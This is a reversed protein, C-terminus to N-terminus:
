EPKVPAEPRAREGVPRGSGAYEERVLGAGRFEPRINEEPTPPALPLRAPQPDWARPDAPASPALRELRDIRYRYAAIEAASCRGYRYCSPLNGPSRPVLPAALWPDVLMYPAPPYLVGPWPAIPALPGYVIAAGGAVAVQALAAPAILALAACIVACRQMVRTM